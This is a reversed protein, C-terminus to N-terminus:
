APQERASLSVWYRTRYQVQLPLSAALLALIRDTDDLVFTGTVRLRELGPQWRLVGPRYRELERLFQGLPQDEVILVGQRWGPLQADFRRVQAVSTTSLRAQHGAVLRQEGGHQPALRLEGRTVSVLCGDGDDRVCFDAPAADIRGYRTQLHLPSRSDLAIEGQLLTLHLQGDVWALDVATATNLQLRSGDVLMQARRQGTTTALDARWREMPLQRYALWAVPACAAVTLAQGLLKRRQPDPRDLCSLGVPAPVQAFRQRLQQAKQWLAEHAASRARWRQLRLDGAGDLEGADQLALWQAAERALQRAQPSVEASM